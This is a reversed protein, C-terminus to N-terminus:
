TFGRFLCGEDLDVDDQVPKFFQLFPHRHRLTDEDVARFNRVVGSYIQLFEMQSDGYRVQPQHRFAADVGALGSIRFNGRRRNQVSPEPTRQATARAGTNFLYSERASDNLM